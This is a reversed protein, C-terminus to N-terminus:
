RGQDLSLRRPSFDHLYRVGRGPAAPLDLLPLSADRSRAADGRVPETRLLMFWQDEQFGGHDRRGTPRWGMATACSRDLAKENVGIRIKKLTGARSRERSLVAM